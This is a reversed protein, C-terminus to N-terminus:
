KGRFLQLFSLLIEINGRFTSGLVSSFQVWELIGDGNIDRCIGTSPDRCINECCIFGNQCDGNTKCGQKVESSIPTTTTVSPTQLTPLTTPTPRTKISTPVPGVPPNQKPQRERPEREAPAECKGRCTWDGAGNGCHKEYVWDGTHGPPPKSKDGGGVGAKTGPPVVESKSQVFPISYVSLTISILILFALMVIKGKM